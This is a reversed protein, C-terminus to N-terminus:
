LEIQVFPGLGESIQAKLPCKPPVTFGRDSIELISIVLVSRSTKCTKTIERERERERDRYM